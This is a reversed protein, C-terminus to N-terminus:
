YEDADFAGMAAKGKGAQEKEEERLKANAAATAVHEACGEPGLHRAFALAAEFVTKHSGLSRSENSRIGAVVKTRSVTVQFFRRSGETGPPPQLGERERGGLSVNLFGTKNSSSPILTLGEASALRRAESEGM